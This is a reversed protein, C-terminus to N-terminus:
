AQSLRREGLIMNSGNAHMIMRSRGLRGFHQLFSDVILRGDRRLVDAFGFSNQQLMQAAHSQLLRFLAIRNQPGEKFGPFMERDVFQMAQDFSGVRADTEAGNVPRQFHKSSAAQRAFDSKVVADRTILVLVVPTTVVVHDAGLAASRYLKEQLFDSLDLLFDSALVMVYGGAVGELNIPNAFFASLVRIPTSNDLGVLVGSLLETFRSCGETLQGCQSVTIDAFAANQGPHAQDIAGSGGESRAAAANAYKV